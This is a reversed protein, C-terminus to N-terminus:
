CAEWGGAEGCPRGRSCRGAPPPAQLRGLTLSRAHAPLAPGCRLPMPNLAGQGVAARYLFAATCFSSPEGVASARASCPPQCRRHPARIRSPSSHSPAGHRRYVAQYWCATLSTCGPVAGGNHTPPVVALPSVRQTVGLERALGAAVPRCGPLPPSPLPACGHSIPQALVAPEAAPHPSDAGGRAAARAEPPALVAARRHFGAQAGGRGGRGRRLHQIRLSQRERACPASCFQPDWPRM